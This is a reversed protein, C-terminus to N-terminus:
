LIDVVFDINKLNKELSWYISYTSKNLLTLFTYGKDTNPYLIDNPLSAGIIKHGYNDYKM